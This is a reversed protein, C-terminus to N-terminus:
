GRRGKADRMIRLLTTAIKYDPMEEERVRQYFSCQRCDDYKDAFAGQVEGECLTGAVVWCARGANKGGHQGDLSTEM